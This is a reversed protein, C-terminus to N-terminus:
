FRFLVILDYRNSIIFWPDFSYTHSLHYCVLKFDWLDLNGALPLNPPALRKFM